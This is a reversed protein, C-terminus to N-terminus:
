AALQAKLERRAREKVVKAAKENAEQRDGALQYMVKTAQGKGVDAGEVVLGVAILRCDDTLVIVIQNFAVANVNNM